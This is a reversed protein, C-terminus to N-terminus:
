EEEPGADMVPAKQFLNLIQVFSSGIVVFLFFGILGKSVPFEDEHEAAKGVPVQGRKSINKHYKENRNRINRPLPPM